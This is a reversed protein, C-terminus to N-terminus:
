GVPRHRGRSSAPTAASRKAARRRGPVGDLPRQQQYDALAFLKQHPRGERAVAADVRAARWPEADAAAIVKFDDQVFLSGYNM